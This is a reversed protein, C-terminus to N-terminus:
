SLKFPKNAGVRPGPEGVTMRLWPYPNHMDIIEMVLEYQLLEEYFLTEDKDNQPADFLVIEKGAQDTFRPSALSCYHGLRYVLSNRDPNIQNPFVPLRTETGVVVFTTFEDHFVDGKLMAAITILSAVIGALAVGLGVLPTYFKDGWNFRALISLAILLLLVGLSAIIFVSKLM